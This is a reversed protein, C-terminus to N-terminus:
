LEKLDDDLHGCWEAMDDLPITMVHMDEFFQIVGTAGSSDRELLRGKMHRQKGVLVVVPGGAEPLATELYREPVRDLVSGKSMQLTAGKPTVDVVVGKEKYYRRGLKETIVRVRIRPIVWLPKEVRSRKSSSQRDNDRSAGEQRRKRGESADKRRSSSSEDLSRSTNQKRDSEDKIRKGNSKRELERLPDKDLEERSLLGEIEGRKIVSDEAENELRIKVMNLGPVGVLQVIRARRKNRAGESSRVTVLSGNQLTRQKDRAIKKERERQYEEKQKELAEQKRFQDPRVRRKRGGPLLLNDVNLKPTAGLGLRHPRPMASEDEKKNPEDEGKWGMGRLLAAGFESIPVTQYKDSDLPLEDPLKEVDAKYQQTEDNKAIVLKNTTSSTPESSVAAEQLARAAQADEAPVTAKEHSDDDDAHKKWRSQNSAVPIVLPEDEPHHQGGKRHQKSDRHTEDKGFAGQFAATKKRKNNKRKSQLKLRIAPASDDKKSNNM